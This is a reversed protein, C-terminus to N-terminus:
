MNLEEILEDQGHLLKEINLRTSKRINFTYGRDRTTGTHNDIDSDRSSPGAFKHSDIIQPFVGICRFDRAPDKCMRKFAIDIPFEDKSLPVYHLLKQAGAFSLAYGYLCVGGGSEFIIRTDNEWSKMDPIPGFNMRRDPGPVTPDNPILYRRKDDDKTQASCHGVWLMDWGDGYPSSSVSTNSSTENLIYRSGWAFDVLQSKLRVDWDADDEMILGTSIKGSVIARAVDLHARWCGIANTGAKERNLSPPLANDAVDDGKVGESWDFTFGTLSSAVAMADRKDDREELGIVFIKEFGLTENYIDAINDLNESAVWPIRRDIPTWQRFSIFFFSICLIFTLAIKVQQGGINSEGFVAGSRSKSLM